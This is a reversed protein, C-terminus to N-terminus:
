LRLQIPVKFKSQTSESPLKTDIIRLYQDKQINYTSISCLVPMSFCLKQSYKIFTLFSFCFCKSNHLYRLEIGQIKHMILYLQLLYISLMKPFNLLLRFCPHCRGYFCIKFISCFTCNESSYLLIFIEIKNRKLSNDHLFHKIRLM